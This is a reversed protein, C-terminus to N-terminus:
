INPEFSIMSLAEKVCEPVPTIRDEYIIGSSVGALTMEYVGDRITVDDHTLANPKVAISSTSGAKDAAVLLADVPLAGLAGAAITLKVVGEVTDIEVEEVEIGKGTTSLTKPAAMLFQGAKPYPLRKNYKLEVVVDGAELKKTLIFVELPLAMSDAGGTIQVPTGVPIFVGEKIYEQPLKGGILRKRNIDHWVHFKGGIQRSLKRFNNFM